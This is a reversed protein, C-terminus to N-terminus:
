VTTFKFSSFQQVAVVESIRIQSNFERQMITMFISKCIFQIMLNSFEDNYPLVSVFFISDFSKKEQKPLRLNFNRSFRSPISEEKFCSITKCIFANMFYWIKPKLMQFVITLVGNKLNVPVGNKKNVYPHDACQMIQIRQTTGLAVVNIHKYLVKCYLCLASELEKFTQLGETNLPYRLDLDIFVSSYSNGLPSVFANETLALQGGTQGFIFEVYRKLFHDEENRPVSYIGGELNFHTPKVVDGQMNNYVAKKGRKNRNINVVRYRKLFLPRSNM